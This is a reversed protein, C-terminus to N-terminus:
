MREKGYRSKTMEPLISLLSALASSVGRRKRRYPVLTAGLALERRRHALMRAITVRHYSTHSMFAVDVTLAGRCVVIARSLYDGRPAGAM